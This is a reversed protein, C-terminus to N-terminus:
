KINYSTIDADYNEGGEQGDAGYSIIEYDRGEVDTPSTYIFDNGWPDKPVEEADLYGGVQWNSPIPDIEPQVVLAALGQETTPYVGNDLKYTKLASELSKITSIAKTVRAKDPASMVKPGVFTALLGLIVLVVMLEILTFGARMKRKKM